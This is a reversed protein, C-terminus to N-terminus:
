DLRKAMLCNILEIRILFFQVYLVPFLGNKEKQNKEWKWVAFIVAFYHNSCHPILLSCIRYSFSAKKLLVIKRWTGVEVM